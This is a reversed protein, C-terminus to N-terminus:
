LGETPITFTAETLPCDSLKDEPISCWIFCETGSKLVSRCYECHHCCTPNNKIKTEDDEALECYKWHEELGCSTASTTGSVWTVYPAVAGHEYKKFYRLLWKNSKDYQVRVLTDVPVNNWDVKSEIYEEDLWFAFLKSCGHCNYNGCFEDDASLDLPKPKVFEQVFACTSGTELASKIENKFKERNKM